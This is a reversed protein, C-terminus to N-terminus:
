CTAQPARNSPPIRHSSRVLVVLESRMRMCGSIYHRLSATYAVRGCTLVPRGWRHGCGEKGIVEVREYILRRALLACGAAGFVSTGTAIVVDTPSIHKLM